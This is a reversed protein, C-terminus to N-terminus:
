DLKSLINSEDLKYVIFYYQQEEDDWTIYYMPGGYTDMSVLAKWHNLCMSFMVLQVNELTLELDNWPDQRANYHMLALKKAKTVPDGELSPAPKWVPGMRM